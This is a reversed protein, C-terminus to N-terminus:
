FEGSPCAMTTYDPIPLAFSLMESHPQSFIQSYQNFVRNFGDQPSGGLQTTVESLNIDKSYTEVAINDTEILNVGLLDAVYDAQDSYYKLYKRLIIKDSTLSEKRALKVFFFNFTRIIIPEAYWLPNALYCLKIYRVFAEAHYDLAQTRKIEFFTEVEEATPFCPTKINLDPNISTRNAVYMATDSAKRIQQGDASCICDEKIGVGGAEAIEECAKIRPIFEQYVAQLACGLSFRPDGVLAYPNLDPLFHKYTIPESPEMLVPNFDEDSVRTMLKKMLLGRDPPNFMDATASLPNFNANPNLDQKTFDPNNYKVGLKLIPTVGHKKDTIERSREYDALTSFPTIIPDGNEDTNLRGPYLLNDDDTNCVTPSNLYTKIIDDNDAM